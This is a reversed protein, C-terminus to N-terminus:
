TEFAEHNVGECSGESCQGPKESHVETRNGPGKWVLVTSGEQWSLVEGQPEANNASLHTPSCPSYLSGSHEQRACM